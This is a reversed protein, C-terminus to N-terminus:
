KGHSDFDRWALAGASADRLQEPTVIMLTSPTKPFSCGVFTSPTQCPLLVFTFSETVALSIHTVELM